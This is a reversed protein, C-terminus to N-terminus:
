YDDYYYYYDAENLRKSISKISMPMLRIREILTLIIRIEGNLCSRDVIVIRAMVDAANMVIVVAVDVIGDVLAGNM